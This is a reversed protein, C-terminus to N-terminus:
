TEQTSRRRSVLPTTWAAVAQETGEPWMVRHHHDTGTTWIDAAALWHRIRRGEARTLLAERRAQAQEMDGAVAAACVGTAIPGIADDIYGASAFTETAAELQADIDALPARGILATARAMQCQAIGPPLGLDRNLQEIEDVEALVVSS